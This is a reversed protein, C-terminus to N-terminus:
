SSVPQLKLLVLLLCSADSCKVMVRSWCALIRFEQFLWFILRRWTEHFCSAKFVYKTPRQEKLCKEVAVATNSPLYHSGFVMQFILGGQSGPKCPINWRSDGTPNVKGVNRSGTPARCCQWLQSFCSDNWPTSFQPRNLRVKDGLRVKLDTKGRGATHALDRYIM